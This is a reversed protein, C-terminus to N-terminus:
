LVCCGQTHPFLQLHQPVNSTGHRRRRFVHTRQTSWLSILAQCHRTTSRSKHPNHWHLERNHLQKGPQVM